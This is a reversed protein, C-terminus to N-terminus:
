PGARFVVVESFTVGDMQIAYCGPARFFVYAPWQHWGSPRLGPELYEANNKTPVLHGQTLAPSGGETGQLGGFRIGNSGDIERGRVLIPGRYAATSVWLIVAPHWGRVSGYTEYQVVVSGRLPGLYGGVYVPGPGVWDKWQARPFLGNPPLGIQRTVPCSAGPAITPLHLPRALTAWVPNPSHPATAPPAATTPVTTPGTAAPRPPHPSRAAQVAAFAGVGAASLALLSASLTLAIRKRARGLMGGPVDRVPPIEEAIGHLIRELDTKM